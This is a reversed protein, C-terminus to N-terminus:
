YFFCHPFTTSRIILIRFMSPIESFFLLQSFHCFYISHVNMPIIFWPVAFLFHCHFNQIVWPLGCLNKLILFSSHCFVAFFLSCVRIFYTYLYLSQCYPFPSTFKSISSISNTPFEFVTYKSVLMSSIAALWAFGMDLNPIQYSLIWYM